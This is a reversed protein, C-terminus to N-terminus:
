EDRLAVIPDVSMARRAPLVAAALTVIALLATPIVLSAADGPQVEFLLTSLLRSVGYGGATGAAFGAVVFLAVGGIVTALVAGRAAGLAIRIGIERTQQVVSFSLVGYVGVAALALSVLAFFASLLALMRERLMTNTVIASQETVATVKLAPTIRAAAARIAGAVATQPRSTRIALTGGDDTPEPRVTFPLYVTPPAVERLDNYKADAVLGVVEYRIEREPGGERSRERRTFQRGLPSGGPLFYRAFTENVLAAPARDGFDAPTLDRGALLRFRLTEIFRPSVELFWVDRDDPRRGNVFVTGNWGSGSLLAWRSAGADTVGPLHRAHDALALVAARAQEGPAPAALSTSVLTVGEPDFGPDVRALRVFSSLLLCAPFLVALSLTVQAAVLPRLLRARATHRTGSAKLATVPTAASARLAPVLGFAATALLGLLATFALVRADLRVDLFAPADSPSLMSVLAPAALRAFATGLVVAVAALLAAEVLLQQMLRGRGAGISIRLAMERERATGRALMLNALNSCALLLVLGVLAALIWLPREFDARLGALGSAAPRVVLRASAYRERTARPADTWRELRERLFATLVVQMAQGAEDADHGPALRGMIKFWQWGPDTLADREPTAAMPIWLTTAIGPEVGTFGERAVGVIAYSRRGFIFTRGIIRPDQGFRRTWFAHSLVAVDRGGGEEDAPVIVRGLAPTVGLMGFASGSVFQEHIREEGVVADFTALSPSQYSFGALEAREGLAAGLRQFLPYNFSSWDRDTGQRVSVQVLAGPDRVPLPRLILADILAVAATCGGIALALSLAAAASVALDRRLMRAGLRVDRLLSDLGSALKVDLSRERLVAANGLRLRAERQAQDRSLGAAELDRARAEVHFALEEDLDDTVRGPRFVNVVRSLWSM